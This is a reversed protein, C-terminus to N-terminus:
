AVAALAARLGPLVRKALGRAAVSSEGVLRQNLELEIGLYRDGLLRRLHTTLGDDRGRYPYNRRTRLDPAHERLACQFARCFHRERSRQPDYLFAVDANRTHGDLQPTFSHVGLHIVLTHRALAATLAHEVAQRHPLYYRERLQQREAESLGSSFESYLRTHGLSRNPEILLRSIRTAILPVGLARSLTTAAALAGPDHGRHSALARRARASAFLPRYRTPVHNGGHECSLVLAVDSLRRRAVESM